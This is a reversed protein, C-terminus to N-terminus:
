AAAAERERRVRECEYIHIYIPLLPIESLCCRCREIYTYMYASPGDRLLPVCVCACVCVCVCVGRLCCRCRERRVGQECEYVHMHVYMSVYVCM